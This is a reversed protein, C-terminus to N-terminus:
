PCLCQARKNKLNREGWGQLGDGTRPITHPAPNILTLSLLTLKRKRKTDQRSTGSGTTGWKHCKQGFQVRSEEKRKLTLIKKRTTVLNRVFVVWPLFIKNESVTQPNPLSPLSTPAPPLQHCQMLLWSAYFPSHQEAWSWPITDGHQLYAKGGWKVCYLFERVSM